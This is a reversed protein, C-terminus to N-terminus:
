PGRLKSNQTKLKSFLCFAFFEFSSVRFEFNSKERARGGSLFMIGKAGGLSYATIIKEPDLLL